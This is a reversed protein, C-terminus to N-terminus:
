DETVSTVPGTHRAHSGAATSRPTSLVPSHNRRHGLRPPCNLVAPSRHRATNHPMHQGHAVVAPHGDGYDPACSLSSCCPLMYGPRDSWPVDALAVTM